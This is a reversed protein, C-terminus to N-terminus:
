SLGCILLLIITPYFITNRGTGSPTTPPVYSQCIDEPEYIKSIEPYGVRFEAPAEMDKLGFCQGDHLSNRRKNEMERKFEETWVFKNALSDEYDGRLNAPEIIYIDPQGVKDVYTYNTIGLDALSQEVNYSSSCIDVNIKPYYWMFAECMEDRTSLDGIVVQGKRWSSDYTCEYTMHDGPFVVIESNLHKNQQFDFDYHDDYDLWPLEETGRFHRLKLKRGSLHSHLLSNFVKIGDQPLKEQTCSSACHGVTVFSTTNPPVTLAQNVQHGVMLLGADHERIENTYYFSVGTEFRLGAIEDPNDYHVELMYFYERDTEEEEGIPYGTNPPFTMKKGGKAWVYLYEQCFFTLFAMQNDAPADQDYPVYCHDGKFGTDVTYNRLYDGVPTSNLPNYCNYLVFHHTHALASLTPVFADFAVIHHKGALQPGKHFSCWYSTDNQPMEMDLTMKWETTKTLDVEPMPAGLLNVSKTGRSSSTHYEIEDSTGLAWILRTTDMGIPYDQDDCTNLLRSFKLYTRNYLLGKFERAEHLVWDSHTDQIPKSFGTAYNDSSYSSGNDHVGAIFIDAGTMSGTPSIGIGVYGHTEAEVEFTITGEDTNVTWGLLVRGEHDLQEWNSTTRVYRLPDQNDQRGRLLSTALTQDFKALILFVSFISCFLTFNSM